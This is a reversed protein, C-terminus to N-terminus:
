NKPAATGNSKTQDNFVSSCNFKPYQIAGGHNICGCIAVGLSVPSSSVTGDACKTSWSKGVVPKAIIPSITMIVACTGIVVKRIINM